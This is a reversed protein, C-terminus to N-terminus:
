VPPEIKLNQDYDWFYLEMEVGRQPRNREAATILAKRLVFDPPVLWVRYKWESFRAELFPDMPNPVFEFAHLREGNVVQVGRYEVAPIGKFNFFAKPNLEAYFLESDAPTSGRLTIWKGTVHDKIYSCNGVQVFEVPAGLIEGKIHVRDPAAWEGEVRSYFGENEKAPLLVTCSRYRFSASAKTKELGGELVSLPDGKLGGGWLLLKSGCAWLLAGLLAAALPLFLRKKSIVLWLHRKVL